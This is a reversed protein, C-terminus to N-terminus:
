RQIIKLLYVEKKEPMEFKQDKNANYFPDAEQLQIPLYSKGILKQAEDVTYLTDKISFVFGYDSKKLDKLYVIPRNATFTIPMTYAVRVNRGNQTGPKWAPSISVVRIAESECGAGLCKIPKVNSVTGDKEIIFSIFVKGNLGTLAAVEPYKLNNVIFKYFEPVGGPYQPEIDIATFIQSDSTRKTTDTKLHTGAFLISTVMSLIICLFLHKM